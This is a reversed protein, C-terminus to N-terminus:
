GLVKLAAAREVCAGCEGCPQEKGAYCSWTLELLVGLRRAEAVIERKTLRLLPTVVPVSTPLREFFEPRCDPFLAHDTANCGIVVREAGLSAAYNSALGCLILNRDPVVAAGGSLDGTGVLASGGLRLVEIRARGWIGRDRCAAFMAMREREAHRQGYNVFLPWVERGAEQELAVCVASDIGGSFLVVSRSM